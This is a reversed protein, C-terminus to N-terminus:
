YVLCGLSMIMWVCWWFGDLNWLFGSKQLSKPFFGLGNVGAFRRKSGGAEGRETSGVAEVAGFSGGKPGVGAASQSAQWPSHFFHTAKLFHSSTGPGM